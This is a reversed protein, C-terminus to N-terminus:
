GCSLCWWPLRYPLIHSSWLPLINTHIQTFPKWCLIVTQSIYYSHQPGTSFSFHPTNPHLLHFNDRGVQTHTRARAGTYLNTFVGAKCPSSILNKLLTRNLRWKPPPIFDFHTSTLETVMKCKQRENIHQIKVM